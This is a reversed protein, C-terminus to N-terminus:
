SQYGPLIKEKVERGRFNQRELFNYPEKKRRGRM